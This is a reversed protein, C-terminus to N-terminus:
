RKGSRVRRATHASAPSPPPPPAAAPVPAAPPVPQAAKVVSLVGRRIAEAVVPVNLVSDDAEVCEGVLFSLVACGRMRVTRLGVNGSKTRAPVRRETTQCHCPGSGCYHEHDLNFSQPQRTKNVLIVM